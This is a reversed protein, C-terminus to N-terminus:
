LPKGSLGYNSLKKILQMYKIYKQSFFFKKKETKFLNDPDQMNIQIATTQIVM